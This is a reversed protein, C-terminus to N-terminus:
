LFIMEWVHHVLGAVIQLMVGPQVGWLRLMGQQYWRTVYMRGFDRYFLNGPTCCHSCLQKPTGDQWGIWVTRGGTVNRDRADTGRSCCASEPRFPTEIYCFRVTRGGIVICLRWWNQIMVSSTWKPMVAAYAFGNPDKDVDFLMSFLSAWHSWHRLSFMPAYLEAWMAQYGALPFSAVWLANWRETFWIVGAPNGRRIYFGQVKPCNAAILMNM